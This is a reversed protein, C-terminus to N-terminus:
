KNEWVIIKKEKNGKKGLFKISYEVKKIKM